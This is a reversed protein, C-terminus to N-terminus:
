FLKAKVILTDGPQITDDLNVKIEKKKGEVTRLVRIGGADESLGGALIVVQRVTTGPGFPYAGPSKVEGSIYVKAAAPVFITDNPRLLVNKEVDGALIARVDVREIDLRDKLTGEATPVIPAQAGDRSRIILVESGANAGLPGARSLIEILSSAGVLSYTGPKAVEGMVFVNKSRYEQVVVDVQPNRIFGNGLQTALAQEFQDPTMGAAQVKGLLPFVIAGDGQVIVTQTLDDNGLVSIKLIDQPGITYDASAVAAPQAPPAQQPALLLCLFVAFAAM